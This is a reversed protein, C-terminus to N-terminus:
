INTYQLINNNNNNKNKLNIIYKTKMKEYKHIQWNGIRNVNNYM